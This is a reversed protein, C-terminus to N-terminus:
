KSLSRHAPSGHWKLLNNFRCSGDALMALRLRMMSGSTRVRLKPLSSDRSMVSGVHNISLSSTM